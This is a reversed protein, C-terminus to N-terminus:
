KKVFRELKFPRLKSLIPGAFQWLARLFFEEFFNMQSLHRARHKKEQIHNGNM